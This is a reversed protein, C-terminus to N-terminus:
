PRAPEVARRYLHWTAHGLVPLAVALGFFLPISGLALSIAVIVGWMAMTVPNALVVRFSTLMATAAGCDRDLLMPFSVVSIAFTAVAFLAGIGNGLVILLWGEPTTLVRGIFNPISAAPAYGFTAVYITQAVALWCLFIVMLLLGLFIIAGFSPSHRLELVKPFTPEIGMERLRSMEYLGLGAIPGVLAFGAMLPFLLPLIDYGLVMRAAFFGVVPYIAILFIAFSPAASFDEWGLRLVDRLDQLGLRRVVPMADSDTAGAIIHAM